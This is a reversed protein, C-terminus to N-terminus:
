KMSPVATTVCWELKIRANTKDCEEILEDLEVDRRKSVFYMEDKAAPYVMSIGKQWRNNRKRETAASRENIGKM